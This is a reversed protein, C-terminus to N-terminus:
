GGIAQERDESHCPCLCPASCTKCQAPRRPVGPAIETAKCPDHRDHRCHTSWYAHHGDSTVVDIQASTEFVIEVSEDARLRSAVVTASDGLITAQQGALATLEAGVVVSPAPLILTLQM